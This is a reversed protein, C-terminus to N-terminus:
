ALRSHFGSFALFGPRAGGVRFGVSNSSKTIQGESMIKKELSYVARCDIKWVCGM